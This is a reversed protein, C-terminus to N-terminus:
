LGCPPEERLSRVLGNQCFTPVHRRLGRQSNERERWVQRASSPHYLHFAVAQTAVSKPRVGAEMLRLGLDDDEQGWGVFDEDFGNVREFDARHLSFNLGILKPKHRKCLRLRRLFMHRRNRRHVEDLRRQARSALARELAGTQIDQESVSASEGEDLRLADGLLLTNPEAERIHAGVFGAELIIDGDIFVLYSSSSARVGNNRATAVRWGTDEHWAHVVPCPLERQLRAVVGATEPGSGDDAVVVEDPVREQRGLSLGCLLLLRPRNYTALIVAVTMDASQGRAAAERAMMGEGM